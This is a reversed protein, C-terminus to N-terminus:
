KDEEVMRSIGRVQGKIRSLRNLLDNKSNSEGTVNARGSTTLTTVRPAGGLTFMEVGGGPTTV